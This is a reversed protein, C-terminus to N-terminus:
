YSFGSKKPYTKDRKVFYKKHRIIYGIITFVFIHWSFHVGRKHLWHLNASIQRLNHSGSRKRAGFYYLLKPSVDLLVIKLIGLIPAVDISVGIELSDKTALACHIHKFHRFKDGLM